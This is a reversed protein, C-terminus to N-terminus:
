KLLKLQNLENTLMDNSCETQTSKEQPKLTSLHYKTKKM